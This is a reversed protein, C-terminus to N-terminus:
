ALMEDIGCLYWWGLWLFGTDGVRGCDGCFAEVEGLRVVRATGDVSSAHIEM